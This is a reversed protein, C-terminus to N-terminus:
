PVGTHEVIPIHQM